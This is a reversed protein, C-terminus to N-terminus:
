CGGAVTRGTSRGVGRSVGGVFGTKLRRLSSTPNVPSTGVFATGLGVSFVWQPSTSTLGHTADVTLALVSGIRYSVGAGVVRSLAQTSDSSGVDAGVALDATWRDTVDYGSEMRLATAHPASLSSQAGLGGLSRSASASLRWRAAPAVGIGGDVGYGMEGSGLGCSANGVPLTAVLAAGVVPSWSGLFPHEAAIVLPLDGLGSHSVSQGAVSDTVHVFSPIASLSLWPRPRVQVIATVAQESRASNFRATGTTIGASVASQGSLPVAFGAALLALSGSQVRM